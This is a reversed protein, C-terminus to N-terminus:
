EEIAYLLQLSIFGTYRVRGNNDVKLYKKYPHQTDLLEKCVINHDLDNIRDQYAISDMRIQQQFPRNIFINRLKAATDKRIDKLQQETFQLSDINSINGNNSGQNSGDSPGPYSSGVSEGGPGGGLDGSYSSNGGQQAYNIFLSEQDIDIINFLVSISDLIEPSYVGIFDISSFAPMFLEDINL